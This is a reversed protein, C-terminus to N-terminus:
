KEVVTAEGNWGEGYREEAQEATMNVTITQEATWGSFADKEVKKITAPLELDLATCGKFMGEYITTWGDCFTVSTLAVCDKFMDTGVYDPVSEFVVSELLTCGEFVQGNATSGIIISGGGGVIISGTGISPKGIGTDSSTDAPKNGLETVSAPIVISTIKTNAFAKAGIVTLKGPLTIATLGSGAFASTEIKTLNAPLTIGTLATCGSFTSSAITALNKPLNINVLATCGSFASGGITVVSDPIIVDTLSSCKSFASAGISSVGVPIEIRRLGSETFTYDPITTVSTALKITFVNKVYAFAYTVGLSTGPRMEVYGNDGTGATPFCVLQNLTNYLEGYDGSYFSTNGMAVLIETLNPCNIFAGENITTVTSPITVTTLASEKFANKGLTTVGEAINVTKLGSRYFASEGITTVTGPIDIHTLSTCKAFANKGITTANATLTFSTLSSCGEFVSENVVSVNKVQVTELSPCDRFLFQPLSTICDPLKVTKLNPCYAFQYGDIFTLNTVHSLDITTFAGYSFTGMTLQISTIEAPFILEALDDCSNFANTGVHVCNKPITFKTLGSNAFMKYPIITYSDDMKATKLNACDVFMNASAASDSSVLQLPLGAPVDISELGSEAFEHSGFAQVNKPFTFSKLSSCKYFTHGKFTLGDMLSVTTLSTCESFMYTSMYTTNVTASKLDACKEFVNTGMTTVTGPVTIATIGSKSFAYNGITTLEGDGPLNVTKLGTANYFAYTDIKQLSKPLTISKLTTNNAFAYASITHVGEEIILESSTGFYVQITNKDGNYVIGREEDVFYADNTLDGDGDDAIELKTLACGEFAGNLATVTKPLYVEKLASCNKFISTGFTTAGKTSTTEPITIKTVGTNEFAANGISEIKSGPAFTISVLAVCDKFASAGITTVNAPIELATVGSATFETYTPKFITGGTQIKGGGFAGESIATLAPSLTIDTLDACGSFACKGISTVTAPMHFETIGSNLFAQDGITTLQSGPAFTISTLDKCEQFANKDISTVKAPIVISKIASAKYTTSSFLNSVVAKGFASEPIKTLNESLTVTTLNACEVFAYKGLTTISNPMTFESFKASMFAYDGIATIKSPIEIETIYSGAFMYNSISATRNPLLVQTLKETGAFASTTASTAAAFTLAVEDNGPAFTLTVLEACNAFAQTNITTVTNPVYITQVSSGMFLKANIVKLGDPLRVEELAKMNEFASAGITLTDPATNDKFSIKTIGKHDKFVNAGITTVTNPIEIAGTLGKPVFFLTTIVESTKGYFIGDVTAYNENGDAVTIASLSSCGDFIGLANTASSGLSTLTSPIHVTELNICDLFVSDGVSATKEPLKVDALGICGKFANAMIELNETRGEAFKIEGLAVCNEFANAGITTVTVPIEIYTINARNKFVGEGIVKVTAPIEYNETLGFPYYLITDENKNLLAGFKDVNYNVNNEDINLAFIQCGSFVSNIEFAPVNEKINLTKVYGVGDDGAFSAPAFEVDSGCDLTVTLLAETAGFANAGVSKVRNTLTVEGLKKCGYFARDEIELSGKGSAIKLTTIGTCGAFAEEDIILVNEGITIETLGTCNMFAQKGIVQIEAPITYNGTRMKPFYVIESTDYNCVVGNLSTFFNNGDATYEGVININKLRPAYDFMHTENFDVVGIRAPLDLKELSTANDFVHEGIELKVEDKGEEAPLFVIEKYSGGYFVYDGIYKVSAPIVAKTFRLGYLSRTLIHEVGDPVNLTGTRNYPVFVLEKGKELTETNPSAHRLLMGDESSFFTEHTNHKSEDSCYVNIEELAFCNYLASGTAITSGFSLYISQLTDPINLVRLSGCNAFAGTAIGTVPATVKTIPDTYVEPVTIETVYKVGQGGIVQYSNGEVGAVLEYALIDIYGAYLTHDGAINWTKLGNGSPDAFQLSLISDDEFWGGFTKSKDESEVVPLTYEQKYYVTHTGVTETVSEYQQTDNNYVSKVVKLTVTYANPQWNAFLVPESNAGYVTDEYKAGNSSAGGPTNYWGAFTYGEKEPEPLNVKDGIAYYVSDVASGGRSDLVIENAVVSVNKMDLVRYNFDYAYLAITNVGAKTFTVNYSTVDANLVTEDGNNIRVGYKYAGGATNWVLKGNAYVVGSLQGSKVTVESSYVSNDAESAGVAQVSINFTKGAVFTDEPIVLENGTAEYIQDNIKVNYATAGEVATWTIKNYNVKVVPAPLKAIVFTIKSAEASNYGNAVATVKVEVNGTYSKVALKTDTVDYVTTEENVTVEVKYGLAGTVKNWTVVSTEEDYAVNEVAGLQRNYVFKDSTSYAYGDAVATVTFEIGGEKMACNAFNFNTSAGNDYIAHDHASNGCVINIVYKQANAVGDFVLVSPEIVTFISVRDLKKNKVFADSAKGNASVSVTYDGAPLSSFNYEYVLATTKYPTSVENGNADKVTITYETGATLAKWEVSGNKVSVNLADTSWVAYLVTNETLVEGEYKYTLKNADQYDSVFWGVFTEGAKQPTPLGVAVGEVTTVISTQGDVNLTVTYEVESASKKVYKAYVTTDVTIITSDFAFPTKGEQDAYWGIFTYEDKQPDAPKAVTKGNIVKVPAVASGGAVDFTVNYAVKKLFNYEEDNHNLTIATGSATASYFETQSTFLKLNTGDFEYKGTELEGYITLSYAGENLTLTFEDTETEFYYTGGEGYDTPKTPEPTTCCTLGFTLVLLMVVLIVNILSHKKTKM